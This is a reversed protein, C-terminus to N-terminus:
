AQEFEIPTELKYVCSKFQTVFNINSNLVCGVKESLKRMIHWICYRHTTSHFKVEIAVKMAPDQDTILCVPMHGGIADLFKDFLWMFSEAKEDRLFAAGFTVCLRHNDLGTFSAFIMKYRNTDYTTDFSVVDGYLAYNLRAFDDTWFVHKLTGDSDLEYAFYFSPHVEKKRKFNEIFMQADSDKIFAKLDRQFNKLDQKSCGVNQFGGMQEKIICHAKSHGINARTLSKFLTRHVSNVGRNSNLMHRKRPISLVHTHGEHFKFLEYKGDKTRRFGVV